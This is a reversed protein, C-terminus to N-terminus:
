PHNEACICVWGTGLSTRVNSSANLSFCKEFDNVVEVFGNLARVSASPFQDLMTLAAVRTTPELLEWLRLSFAGAYRGQIYEGNGANFM